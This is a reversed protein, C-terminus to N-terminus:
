SGAAALKNLLREARELDKKGGCADHLDIAKKLLDIGAQVQGPQGPQDDTLGELTARGMALFLKARAQDPMDEADTLEATRHLVALDFPEGVKQAKFAATAVEEAVLCGLTRAFRDPMVMKHQLVYHAIDLGGIFDGADFRWVMITTLVEDQAGQGADLVGQVYPIYEPLLQRKLEAKGQNSQVQKLRLRDQLLQNLQHEYATAGAMTQTPEVAAAAKAATVRQFHRRCPNTM